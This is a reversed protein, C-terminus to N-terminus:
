PSAELDLASIISVAEAAYDGAAGWDLDLILGPSAGTAIVRVGTRGTFNDAIVVLAIRNKVRAFYQEYVAIGAEASGARLYEEHVKQTRGLRADLAALVRTPSAGTEVARVM